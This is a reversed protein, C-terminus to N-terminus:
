LVKLSSLFFFLIFNGELWTTGLSFTSSSKSFLPDTIITTDGLKILFTAHGIWAVYSENKNKELDGLVKERPVVHDSPFEIKIKKREKNFTKYSFKGSGTKVPSGKPNRFTGDSNHHYPKNEMSNLSTIVIFTAIIFIIKKIFQM